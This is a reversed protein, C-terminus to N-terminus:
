CPAQITTNECFSINEGFPSQTSDKGCPSNEPSLSEPQPFDKKQETRNKIYLDGLFIVSVTLIYGLTAM